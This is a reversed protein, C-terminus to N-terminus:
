LGFSTNAHQRSKQDDRVFRLLESYINGKFRKSFAIETSPGEEYPGLITSLRGHSTVNAENAIMPLIFYPSRSRPSSSPPSPKLGGLWGQIRGHLM